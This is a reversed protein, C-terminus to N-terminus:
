PIMLENTANKYQQLMSSHQSRFTFQNRIKNEVSSKRILLKTYIMPVSLSTNILLSAGLADKSKSDSVM